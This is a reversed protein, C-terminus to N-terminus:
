VPIAAVMAQLALVLRTDHLLTDLTEEFRGASRLPVEPVIHSDDSPFNPVVVPVVVQVEELSSRPLPIGLASHLGSLVVVVAKRGALVQLVVEVVVALVKPNPVEVVEGLVQEQFANSEV